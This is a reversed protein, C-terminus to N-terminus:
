RRKLLDIFDNLRDSDKFSYVCLPVTKDEEIKTIVLKNSYETEIEVLKSGDSLTNAWYGLNKIESVRLM